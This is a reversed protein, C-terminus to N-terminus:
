VLAWRKVLRSFDRAVDELMEDIAGIDGAALRALRPSTNKNGPNLRTFIRDPTCSGKKTNPMSLRTYVDRAYPPGTLVHDVIDLSAHVERCDGHYIVIGDQEFYPKM